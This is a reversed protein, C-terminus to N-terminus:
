TRGGAEVLLVLQEDGCSFEYRLGGPVDDVELDLLANAREWHNMITELELRTDEQPECGFGLAMPTGAPVREFGRTCPELTVLDVLTGKDLHEVHLIQCAVRLGGSTFVSFPDRM